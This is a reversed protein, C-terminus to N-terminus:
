CFFSGQRAAKIIELLPMIRIGYEDDRKIIIEIVNRSELIYFSFPIKFFITIVIGHFRWEILYPLKYLETDLTRVRKPLACVV